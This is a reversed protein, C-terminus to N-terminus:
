MISRLALATTKPKVTSLLKTWMQFILHLTCLGINMFGSIRIDRSIVYTLYILCPLTCISMKNRTTDMNRFQTSWTRIVHYITGWGTYAAYSTVIRHRSSCFVLKIDSTKNWKKHAWCTESLLIDMILLKRSNQQIVVNTINNKTRHANSNRHPQTPTTDTNCASVCSTSWGAVRIGSWVLWV